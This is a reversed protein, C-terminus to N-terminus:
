VPFRLIGEANRYRDAEVAIGDHRACEIFVTETRTHIRGASVIIARQIRRRSRSVYEDAICACPTLLSVDLSRIGAFFVPKSRTECHASISVRDGDTSLEFVAGSLSYVALLIIIGSLLSAGDVDEGPCPCGPSLAVVQFARIRFSKIFESTG